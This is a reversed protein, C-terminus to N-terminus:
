RRIVFQWPALEPFGETRRGLLWALLDPAPAEVSVTAREGEPVVWHTAGDPRTATLDYAVDTPLRPPLAAITAALEANVYASDWEGVTFGLGLDAHHVEVERWRQFPLDVVPNPKGDTTLATASWAEDPLAQWAADLREVAVGLDAIADAATRGRGAEIAADRAEYSPYQNRPEGAAAGEFMGRHSDANRALHTVLMAVTWGPLLSPQAATEDDIREVTGLLRATSRRVGALDAVPKM